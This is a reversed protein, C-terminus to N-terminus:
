VHELVTVSMVLDFSNDDFPIDEASADIFKREHNQIDNSKLLKVARLYRGEYGYNKGPEIGVINLGMKLAYCLFFGNGSGIELIRITKLRELGYLRELREFFYKYLSASSMTQKLSDSNRIRKYCDRESSAIEQILEEPIILDNM